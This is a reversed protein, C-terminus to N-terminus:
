SGRWVALCPNILCMSKFVQQCGQKSNALLRVLSDQLAALQTRIEDVAVVSRDQELDALLHRGAMSSHTKAHAQGFQADLRGCTRRPHRLKFTQVNRDTGAILSKNPRQFNVSPTPGCQLHAGQREAQSADAEAQRVRMISYEATAREILVELDSNQIKKSCLEPLSIAMLKFMMLNVYLKM